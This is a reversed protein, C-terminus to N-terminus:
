KMGSLNLTIEGNLSLDYNIENEKLTKILLEQDNFNTAYEFVEFPDKAFDSSSLFIEKGNENEMKKIFNKIILKPTSKSFIAVWKGDIYDWFFFESEGKLHTKLSQGWEQADYDAKKIYKVLSRKNECKTPIRIQLSRVWDNFNEEGMIAKLTLVKPVLKLNISM